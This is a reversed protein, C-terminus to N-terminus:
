ALQAQQAPEHAHEGVAATQQTVGTMFVEAAQQAAHQAPIHHVTEYGVVQAHDALQDAIHTVVVSPVVKRKIHRFLLLPYAAARRSGRVNFSYSLRTDMESTGISEPDRKYNVGLVGCRRLDTRICRWCVRLFIASWITRSM